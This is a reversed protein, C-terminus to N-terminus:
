EIWDDLEVVITEETVDGEVIYAQLVVKWGPQAESAIAKEFYGWEFSHVGLAIWEEEVIQDRDDYLTYRIADEYPKAVGRIFHEGDRELPEFLVIHDSREWVSPMYSVGEIHPIPHGNLEVFNFPRREEGKLRILTYPYTVEETVFTGASPNTYYVNVQLHENLQQINSVEVAYGGSNKMGRTILVYTNGGYYRVQAMEEHLSRDIWSQLDQPIQEVVEFPLTEITQLDLTNEEKNWVVKKGLAEAIFRVPVYSTNEYYITKPVEEIKKGDVSYSIYPMKVNIQMEDAAFGVGGVLLSGFLAGIVFSRWRVM